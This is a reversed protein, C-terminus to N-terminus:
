RSNQFNRNMNTLMLDICKPKDHNKFCTADKILNKFSYIDCFDKITSDSEEANFDDILMFNEYWASLSNFVKGISHMHTEIFNNHPNYFCRLVWKKKRLNLELFFGERYSFDTAISKYPIDERIYVLIGGGSVNRDLKYTATFGEILFQTPPFSDDTKTKSIMLIDVNGRVENVLAEFRNRISNINIQAIIIRDINSTCLSKLKNGFYEPKLNPNRIPPATKSVSETCAASINSTIGNSNINM